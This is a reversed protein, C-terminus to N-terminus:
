QRRRGPNVPQLRSFQGSWRDILTFYPLSGQIYPYRSEQRISDTSRVRRPSKIKRGFPAFDLMEGASIAVNERTEEFLWAAFDM